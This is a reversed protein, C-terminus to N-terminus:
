FLKRCDEGLIKFYQNVYFYDPESKVARTRITFKPNKPNNKDFLILGIGFRLCLSEIKRFGRKDKVVENPVVLYVKHSFLKYSCAQGFATVLQKADIKIEASIIEIPPRIPDTEPFKYVGLVDPTGWRDRFRNGGLSIAKTCEELDKVLYDAFTNYFIIEDTRGGGREAEKLNTEIGQKHYKELIFFGRKPKVVERIKEGLVWITGHITKEPVEPLQNKIERILESYRIGNPRNELIELAKKVIKERQTPM